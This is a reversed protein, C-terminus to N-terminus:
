FFQQFWEVHQSVPSSPPLGGLSLARITIRQTWLMVICLEYETILTKEIQLGADEGVCERAFRLKM